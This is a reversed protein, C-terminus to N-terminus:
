PNDSLGAQRPTGSGRRRTWAAQSSPRATRASRWLWVLGLHLIPQGLPRGTNAEWLRARKDMGGTLVTKGDPSFVASTVGQLHVMPQGIPRGTAVDWLRATKDMCGTLITKGDPSFAVSVIDSSHSFVRRPEVLHRRWAALSALALHKGAEDGAETAMRLSEVIWLMGPGVQGKEFAVRGREFNLMALRRNSESLATKLHAREDRLAASM